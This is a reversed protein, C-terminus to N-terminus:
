ELLEAKKTLTKGSFWSSSIYIMNEQIPVSVENFTCFVIVELAFLAVFTHLYTYSWQIM